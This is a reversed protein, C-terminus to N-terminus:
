SQQSQELRRGNSGRSTAGNPIRPGHINVAESVSSGIPLGAALLGAYSIQQYDNTFYARASLVDDRVTQPLRQHTCRAAASGLQDHADPDHKLHKCYERPCQARKSEAQGKPFTAQALEGVCETRQSFDM